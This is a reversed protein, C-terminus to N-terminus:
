FTRVKGNNNLKLLVICIMFLNIDMLNFCMLCACEGVRAIYKLMGYSDRTFLM